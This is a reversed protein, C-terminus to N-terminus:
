RRQRRPITSLEAAVAAPLPRPIGDGGLRVDIAELRRILDLVEARRYPGGAARCFHTRCGFPRSEYIRCRSTAPDLMPCAGDAPSDNPLEKRGTALRQADLANGPHAALLAEGRTLFPTLGTLKFRCCEARGVCDRAVPRADLEAYVARVEAALLAPNTQSSQPLPM